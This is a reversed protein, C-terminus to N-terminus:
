KKKRYIIGMPGHLTGDEMRYLIMNGESMILKVRDGDVEYTMESEIGLVGVYVKGGSSFSYSSLGMRDTYTGELSEGCAVVMLTIAILFLRSM